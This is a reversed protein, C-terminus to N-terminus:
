EPIYQCETALVHRGDDLKIITVFPESMDDRVIEGGMTTDAAYHFCVRARKGLLDGQTPFRDMDISPISGM